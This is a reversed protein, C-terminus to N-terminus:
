PAVLNGKQGVMAIMDNCRVQSATTVRVGREAGVGVSYYMKNTVEYAKKVM